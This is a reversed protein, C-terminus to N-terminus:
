RFRCRSDIGSLVYEQILPQYFSDTADKALVIIVGLEELNHQIKTYTEPDPGLTSQGIPGRGHRHAGQKGAHAGRNRRQRGPRARDLGDQRQRSAEEPDPRSSQQGSVRCVHDFGRRDLMANETRLDKLFATLHPKPAIKDGMVILPNGPANATEEPM